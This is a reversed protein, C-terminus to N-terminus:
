LIDDPVEPLTVACDDSVGDKFFEEYKMAYEYCAKKWDSYKTPNEFYEEYLTKDETGMLSSCSYSDKFNNINNISDEKNYYLNFSFSVEKMNRDIVFMSLKWYEASFGDISIIEKIIAM